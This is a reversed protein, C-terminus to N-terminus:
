KKVVSELFVRVLLFADKINEFSCQIKDEYGYNKRDKLFLGSIGKSSSDIEIYWDNEYEWEAQAGDGGYWPFIEPLPLNFEECKDLLYQLHKVAIELVPVDDNDGGMYSKIDEISNM